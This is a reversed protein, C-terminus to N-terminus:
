FYKIMKFNDSTAKEKETETQIITTKVLVLTNQEFIISCIGRKIRDEFLINEPSNEDINM